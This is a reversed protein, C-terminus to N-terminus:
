FPWFESAITEAIVNTNGYLLRLKQTLETGIQGSAGLVLIITKM